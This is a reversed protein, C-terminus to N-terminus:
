DLLRSLYVVRGDGEGKVRIRQGWIETSEGADRVGHVDDRWIEIVKYDTGRTDRQAQAMEVVRVAQEWGAVELVVRKPKLDGAIELIRAYFVDEERCGYKKSVESPVSDPVLALRPEYHRVSRATQSRFDSPSIYPPNATLVDIEAADPLHQAYIESTFKTSFIDGRIFQISSSASPILALNHSLNQKALSIARASIDIGTCSFHSSSKQSCCLLLLPICGTGTCLDLITLPSSSSSSSSSSSLISSLHFTYSETEQRPILVGKRCLIELPGFPQTKLLYQLPVGRSREECLQWIRIGAPIVSPTRHVHDRIWRLENATSQLTRCVPLLLSAVPSIERRARWFISPPLRPM